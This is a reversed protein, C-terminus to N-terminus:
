LLTATVCVGVVLGLLRRFAQRIESNEKALQQM